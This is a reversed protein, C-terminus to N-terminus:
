GYKLIGTTLPTVPEEIPLRGQLANLKVNPLYPLVYKAFLRSEEILPYGSFIFSRMGMDM